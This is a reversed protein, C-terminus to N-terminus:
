LFVYSHETKARRGALRDLREILLGDSVPKALYDHAGLALAQTVDAESHRGTLMLIHTHLRPKISRLTALVDFGDLVPLGIDLVLCAPRLKRCLDVAAQGNRAPWVVFGSRRLCDSLDALVLEDDEALVVCPPRDIM